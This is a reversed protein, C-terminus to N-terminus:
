AKVTEGNLSASLGYLVSSPLYINLASAVQSAANPCNFTAVTRWAAEKTDWVQLTNTNGDFNFVMPKRM